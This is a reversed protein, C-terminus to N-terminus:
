TTTAMDDCAFSVKVEWVQAQDTVSLQSPQVETPWCNIVQYSAAVVLDAGQAATTQSQATVFGSLLNIGINYASTVALTTGPDKAENLSLALASSEPSLQQGARVVARWAEFLAWMVSGRYSAYSGVTEHIFDVVMVGPPDDYGPFQSPVNDRRVQSLNTKFSPLNVRRAYFPMDSSAPLAFFIEEAKSNSFITAARAVKSRVGNLAQALDLQWLDTRQPDYGSQTPSYRGWPNPPVLQPM